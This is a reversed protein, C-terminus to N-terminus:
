GPIGISVFKIERTTGRGDVSGGVVGEAQARSIQVRALDPVGSDFPQGALYYAVNPGDASLDM